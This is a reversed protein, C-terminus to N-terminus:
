LYPNVRERNGKKDIILIKKGAKAEEILVVYFSLARRIVEARTTAGIEDRIRDM